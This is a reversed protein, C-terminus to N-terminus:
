SNRSDKKKVLDYRDFLADIAALPAVMGRTKLYTRIQKPDADPNKVLGVLAEITTKDDLKQPLVVMAQPSPQLRARRKQTQRERQVPDSSFYVWGALDERVLRGERTLPLLVSAVRVGLLPALESATYGQESTAVFHQITTKLTGYKSFRVQRYDWLGQRNFHAVDPITYYRGNFNYSTCYGHETLRRFLTMNSCGSIRLLEPKTLIKREFFPAIIADHSFAITRM